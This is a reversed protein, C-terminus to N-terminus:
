YVLVIGDLTRNRQGQQVCESVWMLNRIEQERLKMYAYFVGYHFQQDFMLVCRSVEESFWAKELAHTGGADGLGGGTGYSSFLERYEPIKEVGARVSEMDDAMSLHYQGVPYLLGFNCYLAKRDDRTLETGLSNMTINLCRKDAEFQLLHSMMVATTGGMTQCFQYFDELYAKTLTNSMIEVNMEDLDDSTLCESFYGALPTEVLVLRYLEKMNSAVAVTAMNDFM